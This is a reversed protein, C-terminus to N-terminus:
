AEDESDETSINLVAEDGDYSVWMKSTGYHSQSAPATKADVEAKTYADTIGYGSLTQAKDAKQDIETQLAETLLTKSVSGSVIKCSIINDASVSCQITGTTSGDYDAILGSAPIRIEQNNVLVLSLEKETPDYYGNKVTAEIPLDIVIDTGDGRTFTFVATDANYSVSKISLASSADTYTKAQTLAASIDPKISEKTNSVIEQKDGDTWYDTGRIPTYGQAGTAGKEGKEGKSGKEGKPLGLTLSYGSGDANEEFDASAEECSVATIDINQMKAAAAAATEERETEATERATEAAARSKEATVRANEAKVRKEEADARAAASNARNIEKLIRQYEQTDRKREAEIRARERQERVTEADKREQEAEDAARAENIMKATDEMIARYASKEEATVEGDPALTSEVSYNIRAAATSDEGTYLIVQTQYVGAAACFASPLIFELIGNEAECRQISEALSVTQVTTYDPLRACLEILTVGKMCFAEAGDTLRLNFRVTDGAAIGKVIRANESKIDVTLYFNKM